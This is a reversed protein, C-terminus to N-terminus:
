KKGGQYKRKNPDINREKDYWAGVDAPKAKAFIPGDVLAWLKVSGRTVTACQADQAAKVAGAKKLERAMGNATVRKRDEPDYAKLLDEVSWLKYGLPKDGARLVNAPNQVVLCVWRALDSKGLMIMDVKAKTQYAQVRPNFGEIDVELLHQFLHSPGDGHVWASYKDYFETSLPADEVEYIFFRRDKDDLYFADAHNSTFYYNICDPVTYAPIYKPNLRVDKQTIMSKLREAFARKDSSTVDDGMIFQKNEQWENHTESLEKDTIATGNKGYIYTLTEGMLSKGTGHAIGWMCVASYLKAGPNQLPYACWQEFWTRADKDGKFVWDLLEKWPKIDGKKPEVGWGPWVNFENQATIQEQGPAYTVREVESRKPWKLWQKATALTVMKTGKAVVVEEDYTRTSYESHEVFAHPALRQGNALKLVVGPNRVYAVETNMNHLEVAASYPQASQLLADLSKAGMAVLYDDLGTKAGEIAPLRVPVPEAGLELLRRCLAIEARLVEMNNAADSDYVIYVIRGEWEVKTFWPLLRLGQANSKFCWVGGLGACAFGAHCAAAAKLEGETIIIAKTVDKAIKDWPCLPPMYVENLTEPPQAYRLPKANTVKTFGTRTDELYRVRYFATQAGTFDFYPIKFGGYAPVKLPKAQDKTFVTFGLVRLAKEPLGSSRGKALMAKFLTAEAGDRPKTTLPQEKGKIKQKRMDRCQCSTYAPYCM